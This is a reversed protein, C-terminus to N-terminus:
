KHKENEYKAKLREYQEREKEEQRRREDIRREKAKKNKSVRSELEADTELREYEISLFSVETEAIYNYRTYFNIKPEEICGARSALTLENNVWECFSKLVTPVEDTKYTKTVTINKRKM